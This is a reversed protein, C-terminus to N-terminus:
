KIDYSNRKGEIKKNEAGWVNVFLQMNNLRFFPKTENQKKKPISVLFPLFTFNSAIYFSRSRHIPSLLRFLYRLYTTM